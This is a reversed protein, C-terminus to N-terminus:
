KVLMIAQPPSDAITQLVASMTNEVFLGGNSM